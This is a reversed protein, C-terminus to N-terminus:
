GNGDATQPGSGSGGHRKMHGVLAQWLRESVETYIARFFYRGTNKLYEYIVTNPIDIFTGTKQKKKCKTRNFTFQVSFKFGLHLPCLAWQESKQWIKKHYLFFILDLDLM